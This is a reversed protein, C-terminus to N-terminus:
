ATLTPRHVEHLTQILFDELEFRSELTQGLSSLARPLEDLLSLCPAQQFNDNFDLAVSTTAAIRAMTATTLKRKEEDLLEAEWALQEYVEFHGASVYDVLVECFTDLQEQMAPSPASQSALETLGVYRAILEQREALWNGILSNIGGWREPMSQINQLM